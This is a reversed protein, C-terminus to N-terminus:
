YVAYGCNQIAKFQTSCYLIYRNPHILVYRCAIVATTQEHGGALVELEDIGSDADEGTSKDVDQFVTAHKPVAIISARRESNTPWGVPASIPRAM